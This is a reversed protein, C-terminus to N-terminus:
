VEQWEVTKPRQGTQFFEGIAARADIIPIASWMPFESPSGRYDFWITGAVDITGTSAYYPLIGTPRYGSLVSKGRGLGVSLSDGSPSLLDVMFPADSGEMTLEDLLRDLEQVTSVDAGKRDWELRWTKGSRRMLAPRIRLEAGPSVASRRARGADDDGFSSQSGLQGRERIAHWALREGSARRVPTQFQGVM